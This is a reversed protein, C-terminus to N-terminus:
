SYHKYTTIKGIHHLEQSSDMRQLWQMDTLSDDMLGCGSDNNTMVSHKNKPVVNVELARNVQYPNTQPITVGLKPLLNTMDRLQIAM